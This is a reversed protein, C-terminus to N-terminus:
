APADARMWPALESVGQDTEALIAAVGGLLTADRTVDAICIKPPQVIARLNIVEASSRLGALMFEGAMGLTGGISIVSPGLVRAVTSLAMGLHRGVEFLVRQCAADGHSASDIVETLTSKQSASSNLALLIARESAFGSLCGRSGCYCLEGSEEIVMHGIEGALGSGGSYIKGGIILGGGIGESCTIHLFDDCGRGAGWSWEALAGLNADNDVVLPVNLEKSLADHINVGKWRPLRQWAWPAIAGTSKEIPGEIAVAVGAIQSWAMSAKAALSRAVEVVLAPGTGANSATQSASESQDWRRRNAFDFLAGRVSNAHVSISIAAGRNSALSVLVERGNVRQCDITGDARLDQVINSITAPSLATSRSIAAQSLPGKSRLANMVLRANANRTSRRSTRNRSSPSKM